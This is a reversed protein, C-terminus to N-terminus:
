SIQSTKTQDVTGLFISSLGGERNLRDWHAKTGNSIKRGWGQRVRPDQRHCTVAFDESSVLFVYNMLTKKCEPENCQAKAGRNESINSFFPFTITALCPPRLCPSTRHMYSLLLFLIMNAPSAVIPLSFRTQLIFWSTNSVHRCCDRPTRHSIGSACCYPMAGWSNGFIIITLDIM